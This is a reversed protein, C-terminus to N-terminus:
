PVLMDWRPFLFIMEKDPHASFMYIVVRLIMPGELPARQVELFCPHKPTRLYAVQSPDPNKPYIHWTYIDLIYIDIIHHHWTDRAITHPHIMYMSQHNPHLKFWGPHLRLSGPIGAWEVVVHAM